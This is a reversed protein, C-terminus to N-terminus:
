NSAKIIEELYEHLIPQFIKRSCNKRILPYISFTSSDRTITKSPKGLIQAEELKQMLKGILISMKQFAFVGVEEHKDNLNQCFIDRVFFIEFMLNNAIIFQSTIEFIENIQYDELKCGVISSIGYHLSEDQVVDYDKFDVRILEAFTLRKLHKEKKITKMTEAAWAMCDFPQDYAIQSLAMFISRDKDTAVHLDSDFGATDYVITFLFLKFLEVDVIRALLFLEAILTTTSAVTEIQIMESAPLCHKPHHHDIIYEIPIDGYSGHNHDVLSIGTACNLSVENSFILDNLRVIPYKEVLLHLEPRWNLCDITSQVVPVAIRNQIRHLYYALGISSVISDLDLM